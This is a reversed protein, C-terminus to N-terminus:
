NLTTDLVSEKEVLLPSWTKHPPKGEIFIANRLMTDAESREQWEKLYQLCHSSLGLDNVRDLKRPTNISSLEFRDQIM